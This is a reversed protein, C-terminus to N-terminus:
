CTPLANFDVGAGVEKKALLVRLAGELQRPRIRMM